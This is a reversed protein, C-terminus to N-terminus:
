GAAEGLEEGSAGLPDLRDVREERQLPEAQDILSISASLSTKAAASAPKMRRRPVGRKGKGSFSGAGWPPPPARAGGRAAAAPPAKVRPPPGGKRKERFAKSGWLSPRAGPAGMSAISSPM